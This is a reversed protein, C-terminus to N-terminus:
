TMFLYILNVISMNTLHSIRIYMLGMAYVEKGEKYSV